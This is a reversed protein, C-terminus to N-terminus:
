LDIVLRGSSARSCCPLFQDNAAREDSTLYSDRHDPTGALVRTLCTGCVGQECSTLLGTGAEVLVQAATKGSPVPLVRGSSALEIEFPTDPADGATAAGFLEWHLNTDQWGSARAAELTAQLLGSPGCVYLHLDAAPTGLLQALDLRRGSDGDHLHVRSGWRPDGLLERFAMRDVSRAAYHLEFDAGERLLQEAMSLLPTIGIGGAVLLRRHAGPELAFANRPGGLTLAHGTDVADHVARSGGRSDSERLVAIRYRHTEAPDNSLSYQRVVGGPLHVDVHAGAAFSPLPGGDAAVLELGCIEPTEMWKRAVRTVFTAQSM